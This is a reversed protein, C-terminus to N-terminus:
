HAYRGINSILDTTYAASRSVLWPLLALLTALFILLRPVSNVATDQISTLVQTLSIAIGAGFGISLLPLALSLAMMLAGHILDVVEAPTM